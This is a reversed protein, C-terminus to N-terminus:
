LPASSVPPGGTRGWGFTRNFSRDRTSFIIVLAVGLSSPKEFKAGIGSKSRFAGSARWHALKLGIGKSAEQVTDALGGLTCARAFLTSDCSRMCM